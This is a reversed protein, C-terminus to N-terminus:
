RKIQLQQWSTQQITASFRDKTVIQMLLYDPLAQGSYPLKIIVDDKFRMLNAAAAGAATTSSFLLSEKDRM